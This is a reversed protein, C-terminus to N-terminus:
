RGASNAASASNTIQFRCWVRLEDTVLFGPRTGPSHPKVALGRGHHEVSGNVEGV